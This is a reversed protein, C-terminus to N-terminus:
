RIGRVRLDDHTNRGRRGYNLMIPRARMWAIDPNATVPVSWRTWMRDPNCSVPRM